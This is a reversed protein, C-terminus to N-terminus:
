PYLGFGYYHSPVDIDYFDPRASKQDIDDKPEYVSMDYHTGLTSALHGGASFGMVGVQDTKINWKDANSRVLRMARQADQLPAKHSEVVSQAQPMRYKM